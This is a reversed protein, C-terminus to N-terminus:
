RAGEPVAAKGYVAAEQGTRLAWWQNGYDFHWWEEIYNSFGAAEMVALLLKRSEQVDGPKDHFADTRALESFDDFVTGMPLEDGNEDLITLDVAGGTAHPAPASLNQSPYSVYTTVKESLAPGTLEPNERRISAEFAEYLGRQVHDPRFGDWILLRYGEPLLSAATYLRDASSENTRLHLSRNGIIM